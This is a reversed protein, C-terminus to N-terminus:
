APMGRVFQPPRQRIISRWARVAAPRSVAYVSVVFPFKAYMGTIRAPSRQGDKFILRGGHAGPLKHMSQQGLRQLLWARVRDVDQAQDYNITVPQGLAQQFCEFSVVVPYSDPKPEAPHCFPRDRVFSPFVWALGRRGEPLGCESLSAAPRGDWCTAAVTPTPTATSTPTAETPSPSESTASPSPSATSTSSSVDPATSPEDMMDRGYYVLGVVLLVALVVLLLTDVWRPRKSMEAM